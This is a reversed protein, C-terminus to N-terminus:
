WCLPSLLPSLFTEKPFHSQQPFDNTFIRVSFKPYSTVWFFIRLYTRNPRFEIRWLNGGFLQSLTYFWTSCQTTSNYIDKKASAITQLCITLHDISPILVSGLQLLYALDGQILSRAPFPSIDSLHNPLTVAGNVKELVKTLTSEPHAADWEEMQTFIKSDLLWDDDWPPQNRGILLNM